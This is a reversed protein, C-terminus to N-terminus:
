RDGKIPTRHTELNYGGTLLKKDYKMDTCFLSKVNQWKNVQQKHIFFLQPFNDEVFVVQIFKKEKNYWMAIVEGIPDVPKSYIKRQIYRVIKKQCFQLNRLLPLNWLIEGLRNAFNYLYISM